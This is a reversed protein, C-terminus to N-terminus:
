VMKFTSGTIPGESQKQHFPFRFSTWAGDICQLPAAIFNSDAGSVVAMGRYYTYGTDFVIINNTDSKLNVSARNQNLLVNQLIQGTVAHNSNQYVSATIYSMMQARSMTQANIWLSSFALCILLILKDIIIRKKM